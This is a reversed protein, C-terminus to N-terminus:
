FKVNPRIMFRREPQQRREGLAGGYRDRSLWQYGFGLSFSMNKGKKSTFPFNKEIMVFQRVLKSDTKRFDLRCDIGASLLASWRTKVFDTRSRRIGLYFTDAVDINSHHKLGGRFSWSMKRKETTQDGKIKGEAEFWNDAVVINEMIHYNGASLLYGMYGKRKHGVHKKGESFDMVNGLFLSLAYPEEFGAALADVINLSPTIRAKRYASPLANRFVAGTIPLPNASAELVAFQPLFAKELMRIYTWVEHGHAEETSVSKSFPVTMAAASYYPDLELEFEPKGLAAAPAACALLLLLAAAPKLQV